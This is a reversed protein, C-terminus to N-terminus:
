DEFGSLTEAIVELDGELGELTNAAEEIEDARGTLKEQLASANTRATQVKAILARVAPALDHFHAASADEVASEELETQL